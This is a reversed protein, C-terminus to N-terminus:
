AQRKELESLLVKKVADEFQFGYGRFAMPIKDIARMELRGHPSRYYALVDNQAYVKLKDKKSNIFVTFQGYELEALNIKEKKAMATLGDHGCRLDANLFVRIVGTKVKAM